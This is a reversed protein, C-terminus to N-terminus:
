NKLINHARSLHQRAYKAESIKNGIEVLKKKELELYVKPRQPTRCMMDRTVFISMIKGFRNGFITWYNM